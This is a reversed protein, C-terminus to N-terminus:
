WMVDCIQGYMRLLESTQEEQRSDRATPKSVYWVTRRGGEGTELGAMQESGLIENRTWRNAIAFATWSLSIRSNSWLVWKTRSYDYRKIIALGSGPYSRLHFDYVILTVMICDLHREQFDLKRSPRTAM